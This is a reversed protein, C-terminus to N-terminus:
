FRMLSNPATSVRFHWLMARSAWGGLNPVNQKGKKAAFQPLWALSHLSRALVSAALDLSGQLDADPALLAPESM